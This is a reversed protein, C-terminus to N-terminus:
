YSVTGYTNVTITRVDNITSTLTIAGTAQPIGTFKAFVVEPLGSPTISTPMDFVEDFSTNRAAYSAGRYLTISGSQVRVGWSSDGDSAQSLVQARRLTQAVTTAAIDSDNRVQFGQYLPIAIGAIITLAAISLLIELLTFGKM